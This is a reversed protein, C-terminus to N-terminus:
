IAVLLFLSPFHSALCSLFFIFPRMHAHTHVRTPKVAGGGVQLPTYVATEFELMAWQLGPLAPGGGGQGEAALADVTGAVTARPAAHSLCGESSSNAESDTVGSGDDAADSSRRPALGGRGRRMEDQM